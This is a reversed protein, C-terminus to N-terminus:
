FTSVEIINGETDLMGFCIYPYPSDPVDTPEYLITAGLKKAKEFAAQIDDTKIGLTANTGIKRTKELATGDILGFYLGNGTNFDTWRNGERNSAKIDLFEEYFKVAREMNEVSFYFNDLRINM